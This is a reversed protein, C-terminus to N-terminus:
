YVCGKGQDPNGEFRRKLKEYLFRAYSDSIGKFMGVSKVAQDIRNDTSNGRLLHNPNACAKNDCLHLISEGPFLEVGYALEYMLRHVKHTKKTGDPYIYGLAGYGHKDLGRTWVWCQDDPKDWDLGLWLRIEITMEM